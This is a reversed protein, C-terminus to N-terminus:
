HPQKYIILLMILGVFIFANCSSEHGLFNWPIGLM